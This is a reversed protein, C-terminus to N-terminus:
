ASQQQIWIKKKVVATWGTARAKEKFSKKQIQVQKERM